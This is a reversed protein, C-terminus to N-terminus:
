PVPRAFQNVDQGMNGVTVNVNRFRMSMDWLSANMAGIQQDLNTITTNVQGVDRKIRQTYNGIEAMQEGMIPMLQMNQDMSNITGRMQLMLASVQGFHGQMENMNRVVLRVEQTLDNVFYINILSMAGIVVILTYIFRSVRQSKRDTQEIGKALDAELNEMTQMLNTIQDQKSM